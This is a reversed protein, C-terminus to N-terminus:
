WHMASGIGGRESGRQCARHRIRLRVPTLWSSGHSSCPRTGGSTPQRSAPWNTRVVVLGVDDGDMEGAISRGTTEVTERRRALLDLPHPGVGTDADFDVLNRARGSRSSTRHSLGLKAARGDGYSCIRRLCGPTLQVGRRAHSQVRPL